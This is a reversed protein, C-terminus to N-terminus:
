QAEPDQAPATPVAVAIVPEVPASVVVAVAPATQILQATSDEYRESQMKWLEWRKFFSASITAMVPLLCLGGILQFVVLFGLSSIVSGCANEQLIEHYYQHINQFSIIQTSTDLGTNISVLGASITSTSWPCGDKVAPWIKNDFTKFLSQAERLNTQAKDLEDMIPNKGTDTIYYRVSKFEISRAGFADRAYVVANYDANKCFTSLGIGLTVQTAAVVAAILIAFSICPSGIRLCCVDCCKAVDSGGCWRASVVGLLICFSTVGVLVMPSALSLSLITGIFDHDDSIKTANNAIPTVYSTFDSIAETSEAIVDKFKSLPEYVPPANYVTPCERQLSALSALMKNGTANMAKGTTAATTLDKAARDLEDEANSYSANGSALCVLGSVGIFIFIFVALGIVFKSSPKTV